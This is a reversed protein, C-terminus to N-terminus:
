LVCAYDLVEEGVQLRYTNEGGLLWAFNEPRAVFFRPFGQAAMWYYLKQLHEQNM